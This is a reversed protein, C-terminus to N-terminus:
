VSTHVNYSDDPTFLPSLELACVASSFHSRFVLNPTRSFHIVAVDIQQANFVCYCHEMVLYHQLARHSMPGRECQLQEGASLDLRSKIGSEESM